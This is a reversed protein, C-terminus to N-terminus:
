EAGQEEEGAFKYYVRNGFRLDIYELESERGALEESNLVLKLNRALLTADAGFSAKLAFGEAFRVTFDQGDTLAVSEPTVPAQQQLVSLLALIGAFHGSAYSQGIPEEEPLAGYFIYPRAFRVSESSSASAFIFGIDDLKYCGDDAGCWQAFPQREEVTVVIHQALPAPHTVVASRIGPFFGVVGTEISKKPYFLVNSRSLLHYRGDDLISEVFTKVLQQPVASAGEITVEQINLQPVYSVWHIGYGVGVLVLLLLFAVFARVRRRRARLPM